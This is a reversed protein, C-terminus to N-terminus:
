DEHVVEFENHNYLDGPAITRLNDALRVGGAQYSKAIMYTCIERDRPMLTKNFLCSKARRLFETPMVLYRLWDLIHRLNYLMGIHTEAHRLTKTIDAGTMNVPRLICMKSHRLTGLDIYGTRTGIEAQIGKYYGHDDTHYTVLAAHTWQSKTLKGIYKAVRTRGQVLVIDGPRLRLMFEDHERIVPEELDELLWNHFLQTLRSM